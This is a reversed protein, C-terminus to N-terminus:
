CHCIQNLNSTEDKLAQFVRQHRVHLAFVHVNGGIHFLEEWFLDEQGMVDFCPLKDYGELLLASLSLSFLIQAKNRKKM